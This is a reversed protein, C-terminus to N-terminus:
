ASELHGVFVALFVVWVLFQPQLRERELSVLFIFAIDALCKETAKGRTKM